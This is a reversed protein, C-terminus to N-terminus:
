RKVRLKQLSLNSGEFGLYLTPAAVTESSGPPTLPLAVLWSAKAQGKKDFTTPLRQSQRSTLTKEDPTLAAFMPILLPTKRTHELLPKELQLTLSVKLLTRRQKDQKCLAQVKSFSLINQTDRLDDILTLQAFPLAVFTQPCSRSSPASTGPNACATALFICFLFVPLSAHKMPQLTPSSPSFQLPHCFSEAERELGELGLGELYLSTRLFCSKLIKGKFIALSLSQAHSKQQRVVGEM